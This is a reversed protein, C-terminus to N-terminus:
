GPGPKELEVTLQTTPQEGISQVVGRLLVRVPQYMEEPLDREPTANLDCFRVRSCLFLILENPDNPCTKDIPQASRHM